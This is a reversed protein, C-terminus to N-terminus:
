YQTTTVQPKKASTIHTSYKTYKRNQYTLGNSYTSAPVCVKARDPESQHPFTMCPMYHLLVDIQFNLQIYMVLIYPVMFM